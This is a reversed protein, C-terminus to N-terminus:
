KKAPTSQAPTGPAATKGPMRTPRQDPVFVGFRPFSTSDIWRALTTLEFASLGAHSKRVVTIQTPSTATAETVCEGLQREADLLFRASAFNTPSIRRHTAIEAIQYYQRWHALRDETIEWDFMVLNERSLQQFLEKPAPTRTAALPFMDFGLFGPSARLPGIHPVALPLGTWAIDNRNSDRTVTGVFNTHSRYWAELKPMAAKLDNTPNASPFAYNFQFPIKRLAWGAFQSPLSVNMRRLESIGQLVPAIGRVATFSCLPDFMSNTPIRWPEPKWGHAKPYDLTVMTRVFSDTRNSFSFHALPLNQFNNLEPLWARMHAVNLDGELWAGRGTQATIKPILAATVSLKEPGAAVVTWEGVRGVRLVQSAQARKVQWGSLGDANVPTPAGLKWATVAQRLATDWAKARAEPLRVAVVMEPTSRFDTYSERALLDDLLPRFLARTDANPANFADGALGSLRDLFKDRLANAGPTTWVEKLKKGDPSAFLQASGVFHTRAILDAEAACGSSAFLLSFLILLTGTARSVTKM